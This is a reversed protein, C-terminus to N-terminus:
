TTQACLYLSANVSESESVYVYLGEEEKKEEEWWRVL